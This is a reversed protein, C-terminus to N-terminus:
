QEDNAGWLLSVVDELRSSEKIAEVISPTYKQSNLLRRLSSKATIATRCYEGIAAKGQQTEFAEVIKAVVTKLNDIKIIIAKGSDSLVGISDNTFSAQIKHILSDPFLAAAEKLLKSINNRM